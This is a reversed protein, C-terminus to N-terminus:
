ASELVHVRDPDHTLHVAAGEEFGAGDRAIVRIEPGGAQPQVFLYLDSGLYVARTVTGPIGTPGFSFDAPRLIAMIPEGAKRGEAPLRLEMGEATRALATAGEVRDVTAPFLNTEGIFEAVFRNKPHRYIARPTGTQEIRGSRMVVIRDSMTLAEEQDHTVFLFAIGLSHQLRKLEM